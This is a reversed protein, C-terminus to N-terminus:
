TMMIRRGLLLPPALLAVTAIAYVPSATRAYLMAADLLVLSLIMLRVAAHVRPPEPDRYAALLRYNVAAAVVALGSLTIWLELNGTNPGAVAGFFRTSERM